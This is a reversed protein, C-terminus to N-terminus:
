HQAGKVNNRKAETSHRWTVSSLGAHLCVTNVCVAILLTIYVQNLVANLALENAESKTSTFVM